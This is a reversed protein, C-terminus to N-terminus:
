PDDYIVQYTGPVRKFRQRLHQRVRQVHNDAPTIQRHGGKKHEGTEHQGPGIRASRPVSRPQPAVTYAAQGTDVGHIQETQGDYSRKDHHRSRSRFTPQDPHV